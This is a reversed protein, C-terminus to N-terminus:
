RANLYIKLSESRGGLVHLMLVRATALQLSTMSGHLVSTAFEVRLMVISLLCLIIQLVKVIIIRLEVLRMPIMEAGVTIQWMLICKDGKRYFLVM